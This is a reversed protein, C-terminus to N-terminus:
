QEGESWPVHQPQRIWWWGQNGVRPSAPHHQETSATFAEDLQSISERLIPTVLRPLEQAWRELQDRSKLDSRYMDVPYRGTPQWGSEMRRVLREWAALHIRANYLATRSEDSLEPDPPLQQSERLSDVARSFNDAIPTSVRQERIIEPIQIVQVHPLQPVPAEVADISYVPYEDGSATLRARTTMGAPTVLWYASPIEEEAPYLVVTQTVAAFRQALDSETPPTAMEDQVYIDLALSTDGSVHSFGCLVLADWNRGEQDGDEDAADVEKPDVSLCAALAESIAIASLPNLTFLNYSM